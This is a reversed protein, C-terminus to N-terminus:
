GEWAVQVSYLYVMMMSASFTKKKGKVVKFRYSM